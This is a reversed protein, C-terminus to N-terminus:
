ENICKKDPDGCGNKGWASTCWRFAKRTNLSLIENCKQLDAGLRLSQIVRQPPPKGGVSHTTDFRKSILYM